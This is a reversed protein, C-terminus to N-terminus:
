CNRILLYLIFFSVNIVKTFGLTLWFDETLSFREIIFFLKLNKELICKILEKYDETQTTEKRSIMLASLM